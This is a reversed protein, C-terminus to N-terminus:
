FGLNLGLFAKYVIILPIYFVQFISDLFHFLYIFFLRELKLLKIDLALINMILNFLTCLSKGFHLDAGAAVMIFLTSVIM